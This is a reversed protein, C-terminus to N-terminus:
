RRGGGRVLKLTARMAADIDSGDPALGREEFWALVAADNAENFTDSAASLAALAHRLRREAAVLVGGNTDSDPDALRRAVDRRSARAKEVEEEHEAVRRRATAARRMAKVVKTEITRM